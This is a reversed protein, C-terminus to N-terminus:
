VLGNLCYSSNNPYIPSEHLLLSHFSLPGMTMMGIREADNTVTETVADYEIRIRHCSM